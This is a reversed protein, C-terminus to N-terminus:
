QGAISNGSGGLVDFAEKLRAVMNDEGARLVKRPDYISKSPKGTDPDIQHEFAKPQPKMYNHIGASLAFQTDTDINMKFVGYQLAEKIEEETSGSGGHFVFDYPNKLM